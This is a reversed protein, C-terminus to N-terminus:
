AAPESLSAICEERIAWLENLTRGQAEPDRSTWDVLVRRHLEVKYAGIQDIRIPEEHLFATIPEAGEVNRTVDIRRGDSVLYCHAEPISALGHRALVPGVGPTNAESMEYIGLTLVVDLGLEGALAALLAHKTSCTGRGETLVLAVDDRSSTRGYPLLQVYRAAAAFDTIGRDRFRRTVAGDGVLRACPLNV